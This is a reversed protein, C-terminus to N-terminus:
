VRRFRNRREELQKSRLTMFDETSISPDNLDTARVTAQGGVPIVPAPANSMPPVHPTAPKQLQAEVRALELAMKKPPLKSIREAEELNKGLHYLVKQPEKLEIATELFEPSVNQGIAGVLHLNKLADDFDKFEKQGVDVITDCARNFDAIRALEVARLEARKNIEEEGMPPQPTTTTPQTGPAATGALQALLEATRAEAALRGDKEAKQQREAEYRKATLENIRKQAWEPTSTVKNPDPNAANPDPTLAPDIEPTTAPATDVVPNDVVPQNENTQVTPSAVVVPTETIIPSANPDNPQM